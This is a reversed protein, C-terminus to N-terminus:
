SREAPTRQLYVLEGPIAFGDSKGEVAEFEEESHERYAHYNVGSTNMLAMCGVMFDDLDDGTLHHRMDVVWDRGIFVVRVASQRESIGLCKAYWLPIYIGDDEPGLVSFSEKNELNESTMNIQHMPLSCKELLEAKEYHDARVFLVHHPAPGSEGTGPLWLEVGALSGPKDDHLVTKLDIIGRFRDQAEPMSLIQNTIAYM